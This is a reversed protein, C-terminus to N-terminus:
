RRRYLPQPELIDSQYTESILGKIKLATSAQQETRMAFADFGCRELYAFQDPMIDGYARVEGKFGHQIRLQRAYTFGRGDAFKPFAIAIIDINELHPILADIGENEAVFAGFPLSSEALEGGTEAWFSIPLLAHGPLGQTDEAQYLQWPDNEVLQNQKILHQM